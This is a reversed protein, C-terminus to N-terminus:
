GCCRNIISVGRQTWWRRRRYIFLLAYARTLTLSAAGPEQYLRGEFSLLVPRSECGQETGWITWCCGGECLPLRRGGKSGSAYVYGKRRVSKGGALIISRRLLIALSCTEGVLNMRDEEAAVLFRFLGWLQCLEVCVRQTAPVELASPIYELLSVYCRIAGKTARL